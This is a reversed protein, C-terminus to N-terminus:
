PSTLFVLAAVFAILGGVALAQVLIIDRRPGGRKVYRESARAFGVQQEGEIVDHLASARLIKGALRAAAVLAALGLLAVLILGV